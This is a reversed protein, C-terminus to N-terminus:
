HAAEETATHALRGHNHYDVVTGPGVRLTAPEFGYESTTNGDLIHVHVRETSLGEEVIVSQVMFPHPHCHLHHSGVTDFRLSRTEGPAITGTDLLGSAPGEGTGSGHGAHSDTPAPALCGALAVVSGLAAVLLSVHLRRPLRAPTLRHLPTAATSSM